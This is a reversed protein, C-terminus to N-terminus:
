LGLAGKRFSIKRPCSGDEENRLLLPCGVSASQLLEGTIELSLGLRYYALRVRQIREWQQSVNKFRSM